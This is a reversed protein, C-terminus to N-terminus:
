EIKSGASAARRESLSTRSCRRATKTGNIRRLVKCVCTRAGSAAGTESRNHHSNWTVMLSRRGTCIEARVNNLRTGHLRVSSVAKTASQSLTCSTAAKAYSRLGEIGAFQNDIPHPGARRRYEPNRRECAPAVVIASVFPCTSLSTGALARAAISHHLAAEELCTFHSYRNM